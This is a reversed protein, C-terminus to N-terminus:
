LGYNVMCNMSCENVKYLAAGVAAGVALGIGLLSHLNYRHAAFGDQYAFLAIGCIALVVSM